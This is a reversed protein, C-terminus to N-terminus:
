GGGFHDHRARLLELGSMALDRALDDSQKHRKPVFPSTVLDISTPLRASSARRPSCGRSQGM